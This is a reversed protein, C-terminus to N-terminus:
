HARAKWSDDELEEIREVSKRGFKRATEVAQDLAIFFVIQRIELSRIHSTEDIEEVPHASERQGRDLKRFLGWLGEPGDGDSFINGLSAQVLQEGVSPDSLLKGSGIFWGPTRLVERPCAAPSGPLTPNCQGLM